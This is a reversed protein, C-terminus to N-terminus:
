RAKRMELLGEELTEGDGGCVYGDVVCRIKCDWGMCQEVIGGVRGM